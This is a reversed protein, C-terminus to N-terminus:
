TSGMITEAFGALMGEVEALSPREELFGLLEEDGPDECGERRRVRAAVFREAERVEDRWWGRAAELTQEATGEGEGGQGSMGRPFLREGVRVVYPLRGRWEPAGVTCRRVCDRLATPTRRFAPFSLDSPEERFTEVTVCSNPFGVSEFLCWLLKGLMFVQASEQERPLLSNWPQSFGGGRSPTSSASYRARRSHPIWSPLHSKLITTYHTRDPLPVLPSTSLIELYEIYYIEPPSWSYWSGRQEFDVLLTDISGSPSASLLINNPKLDTYFGMPSNRIHSLASLVQRAWRLRDSLPFRPIPSSQPARQLADRVTGLPYFPLVFGCVGTRGGFRCQKTVVYLPSSMINCHPSMTLLAHLEHYFYKVDSSVSKFAFTSADDPLHALRVVSIAEHIQCDLQLSSYDLIQPWQNPTLHWLDQLEAVTLWQREIDYNPVLHVPTKNIDSSIADLVIRSGFPLSLYTSELDGDDYTASWSHLRQLIPRSIGLKALEGGGVLLAKHSQLVARLGAPHHLQDPIYVDVRLPPKGLAFTPVAFFRTGDADADDIRWQLDKPLDLSNLRNKPNSQSTEHSNSDSRVPTGHYRLPKTFLATPYMVSEFMSSTPDM